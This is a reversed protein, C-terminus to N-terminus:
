RGAKRVIPCIRRTLAKNLQAKAVFSLDEFVLNNGETPSDALAKEIEEDTLLLQERNEVLVTESWGKKKLLNLIAEALEFYEIKQIGQWTGEYDWEEEHGKTHWQHATQAIQEKTNM